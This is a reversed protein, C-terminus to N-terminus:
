AAEALEIGDGGDGGGVGIPTQQGGGEAAAQMQRAALVGAMKQLASRQDKERVLKPDVSMKEAFWEPADEIKVGLMFAEPGFGQVLAMWQAATQVESLNQAQALPSALEIDVFTGDIKVKQGAELQILGRRGLTNLVRQFLPRILESMLRGFPSGVDAQLKRQRAIFETASRVPGAEDPLADDLMINKINAVLDAAVLQSVDFRGVFPLPALSPGMTGGTSGVQIVTGPTIRITNPNLVGDDRGLWVGSIALSANKLILEKLKNLTKADPLAFLVPGRGEVENALKIWRATIWPSEEFEEEVIRDGSAKAKRDKGESSTVIVDYYYKKDDPDFYTAEELTVVKDPNDNLDDLFGQPLKVKGPWTPEINRLPLRHRRFWGWIEGWPGEEHAMQSNPVCQFRVPRNDDGEVVMMDGTGVALELYFENIATDFNSAHIAAFAKTNMDDLLAKVQQKAKEPVFPGPVLSGWKMFPPTLDSQLRNAFRVTSLMLTSDFVRDMKPEGPRSQSQGGVDSRYPNRAPLALSYADTKLSRWNDKIKWAAKSRSLVKEVKQRAM